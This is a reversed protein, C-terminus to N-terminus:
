ATGFAVFDPLQKDFVAYAGVGASVADGSGFFACPTGDALELQGEVVNIKASSMAGGSAPGHGWQVVAASTPVVFRWYMVSGYRPRVEVAFYQRNSLYGPHVKCVFQSVEKPPMQPARGEVGARALKRWDPDALNVCLRVRLAPPVDEIEVGHLLGILPFDGGKDNLARYLAYALEEKCAERTVSNPTLLYAWGSLPSQMIKEGIQEWLRLGPILEVKDYTAEVGVSGLEQILYSFDGEEDDVWAYTIWLPEAM